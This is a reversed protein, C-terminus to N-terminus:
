EHLLDIKAGDKMLFKPEEIIKEIVVDLYNDGTINDM